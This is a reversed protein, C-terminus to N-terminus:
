NLLLAEIADEEDDEDEKLRIIARSRANLLSLASILQTARRAGAVAELASRMKRLRDEDEAAAALAMRAVAMKEEAAAKAKESKIEEVRDLAAQEADQVAQLEAQLERWKKRTFTTAVIHGGTAVTGPSPVPAAGIGFGETVVLAVTGSFTGNGFGETIVSAVSM